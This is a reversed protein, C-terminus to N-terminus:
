RQPRDTRSSQRPQDRKAPQSEHASIAPVSAKAPDGDGPQEFAPPASDEPLTASNSLQQAAAAAGYRDILRQHLDTIQDPTLREPNTVGHYHDAAVLLQARTVGLAAAREVLTAFTMQVLQQAAAQVQAEARVRAAEAERVIQEVEAYLATAESGDGPASDPTSGSATDVASVHAGNWGDTPALSGPQVPTFAAQRKLLDAFMPNHLELGLPFAQSNSKVVRAVRVTEFGEMRVELELLVDVFYELGSLTVPLVRGLENETREERGRAPIQDTIVVSAGSDVCLRRLVEQFLMQDAALQDATPQALPDGTTERLRRLTEAHKRGFYIAFSDLAFCGYQRQERGETLAWTIFEPLEDPANVELADFRTGDSGPILRAKRETDFLCLRGQGADALSAAFSSKGSGAGGRVAVVLRNRKALRQLPHVRTPHAADTM